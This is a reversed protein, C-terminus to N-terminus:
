LKIKKYSTELDTEVIQLYSKLTKVDNHGLIKALTFIDMGQRLCNIAFTRRFTHATCKDIGSAKRIRQMLHQFGNDTFRDGHITIFLPDVATPHYGIEMQYLKIAKQAAVNIFTIRDKGGKGDRVTVTTGDIDGVNMNILENARVGSALLFQCVAKDRRNTCSDFVIQLEEQTFAPLIHKPLKPMRVKDFPSVEILGDQVCYKFFARLCRAVAHQTHGSHDRYTILYKKIETSNLSSFDLGNQDCYKIFPTLLKKYFEKTKPSLRRADCDLQHLEYADILKPLHTPLQTSM